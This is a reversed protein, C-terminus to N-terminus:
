GEGGVTYRHLFSLSGASRLQMIKCKACPDGAEFCGHIDKQMFIGVSFCMEYRNKMFLSLNKKYKCSFLAVIISSSIAPCKVMRRRDFDQVASSPPLTAAM